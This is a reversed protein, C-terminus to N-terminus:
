QVNNDETRESNVSESQPITGDRMGMKDKYVDFVSYLLAAFAKIIYQYYMKQSAEFAHTSLSDVCLFGLITYSDQLETRPNRVNAIRIPAVITAKYYKKWEQNSNRYEEGIKSLQRQYEELDQQYFCSLSKGPQVISDFDTNLCVITENRNSDNDYVTRQSDSNKSRCFTKVKANSYGLDNRPEIIKICGSVEQRTLKTFIDCMTDLIDTSYKLVLQHVAEKSYNSVEIEGMSNRYGRLVEYYGKSFIERTEAQIKRYKILKYVLWICFLCIFILVLHGNILSAISLQGAFLLRVAKYVGLLAGLITIIASVVGLANIISDPIRKFFNDLM